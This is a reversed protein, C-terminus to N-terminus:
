GQDDDKLTPLGFVAPGGHLECTKIKQRDKKIVYECGCKIMEPGETFTEQGRERNMDIDHYVRFALRLLGSPGINKDGCMKALADHERESLHAIVPHSVQSVCTGFKPSDCLQGTGEGLAHAPVTKRCGPNICKRGMSNSRSKM